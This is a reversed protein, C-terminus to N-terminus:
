IIYQRNHNITLRSCVTVASSLYHILIKLLFDIFNTELFKLFIISYFHVISKMFNDNICKKIEKFLKIKASIMLYNTFFINLFLIYQM